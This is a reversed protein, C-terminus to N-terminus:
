KIRSYTWSSRWDVCSSVAVCPPVSINYSVKSESTVQTLKRQSDSFWSFLLIIVTRLCVIVAKGQIKRLLGQKWQTLFGPRSCDREVRLYSQSWGAEHVEQWRDRRRILQVTCFPPTSVRILGMSEWKGGWYVMIKSGFWESFGQTIKTKYKFINM